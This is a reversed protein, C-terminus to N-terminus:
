RCAALRPASHWPGRHRPGGLYILIADSEFLRLPETM